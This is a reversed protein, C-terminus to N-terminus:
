RIRLRFASFGLAPYLKHLLYANFGKTVVGHFIFVALPAWAAQGLTNTMRLKM